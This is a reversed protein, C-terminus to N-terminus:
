PWVFDFENKLFEKSYYRDGTIKDGRLVPEKEKDRPTNKINSKM